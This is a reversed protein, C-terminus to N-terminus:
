SVERGVTTGITKGIAGGVPGGYYTGVAAGITGFISSGRKKRAAEKRRRINERETSIARNIIDEQRGAEEMIENITREALAKNKPLIVGVGTNGGVSDAGSYLNTAAAEGLGKNRVFREGVSVDTSSKDAQRNINDLNQQLEDIRKEGESSILQKEQQYEDIAGLFDAGIKAYDAYDKLDYEDDPEEDSTTKASVGRDSNDVALDPSAEQESALLRQAQPDKANTYNFITKDNRNSFSDIDDMLEIFTKPKEETKEAM